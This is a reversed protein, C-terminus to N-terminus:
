EGEPWDIELFEMVTAVQTLAKQGLNRIEIFSAQTPFRVLFERVTADDDGLIFRVRNYTRTSIKGARELQRLTIVEALTPEEYLYLGVAQLGSQIKIIGGGGVHHLSQFTNEPM